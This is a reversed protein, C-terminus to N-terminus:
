NDNETQFRLTRQLYGTPHHPMSLFTPTEYQLRVGIKMQVELDGDLSIM